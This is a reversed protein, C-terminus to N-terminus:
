KIEEFKECSIIIPPERLYIEYSKFITGCVHFVILRGQYIDGQVFPLCTRICKYEKM